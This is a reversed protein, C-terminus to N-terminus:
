TTEGFYELAEQNNTFHKIVKNLELLEYVSYVENNMKVFVIDGEKDRNEKIRGLIVGWGASSIYEVESFDLVFRHIENGLSLLKEKLKPATNSDICGNLHLIVTKHDEGVKTQTIKLEETEEM